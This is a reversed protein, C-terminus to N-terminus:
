LSFIYKQIFFQTVEMIIVNWTVIIECKYYNTVLRMSYPSLYKKFSINKCNDVIYIDKRKIYLYM